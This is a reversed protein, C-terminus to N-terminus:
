FRPGTYKPGIGDQISELLTGGNITDLLLISIFIVAGVLLGTGVIKGM